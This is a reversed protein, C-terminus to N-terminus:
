LDKRYITIAVDHRERRLRVIAWAERLAEIRVDVRWTTSPEIDILPLLAEATEIIEEADGISLPEGGNIWTTLMTSADVQEWDSPLSVPRANVVSVAVVTYLTMVGIMAAFFTKM